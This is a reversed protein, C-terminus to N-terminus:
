GWWVSGWIADDGRRRGCWIEATYFRVTPEPMCGAAQARMMLDGGTILDMVFFLNAPTQFAAHLRALFPPAGQLALM